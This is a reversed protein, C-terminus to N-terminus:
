KCSIPCQGCHLSPPTIKVPPLPTHARNPSEACAGAYRPGAKTVVTTINSSSIQKRSHAAGAGGTACKAIAGPACAGSGAVPPRESDGDRSPVLWSQNLPAKPLQGSVSLRWDLPCNQKREAGALWSSSEHGPCQCLLARECGTQTGTKWLFDSSPLDSGALFFCYNDAPGINLCKVPPSGLFLVFATQSASLQGGPLGPSCHRQEGSFIFFWIAPMELTFPAKQGRGPM